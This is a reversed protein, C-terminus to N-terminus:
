SNQLDSALWLECTCYLQGCAINMEMNMSVTLSMLFIHIDSAHKSLSNKM